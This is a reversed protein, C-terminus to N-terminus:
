IKKKNLHKLYNKKFDRLSGFFANESTTLGKNCAIKHEILSLTCILDTTQFLKYQNQLAPKYEFNDNFWSNFVAVIINTLQIQGNDYYIIINDFSQLYELNEKIFNALSKSIMNTMDLQSSINKKDIIINKYKIYLKRTFHFLKNFIKFREKIDIHIYNKEKRILPGSHVTHNGLKCDNLALDLKTIDEKISIDQNHFVLTIIYYPSNESYKGFDGSEDIFISLEAM